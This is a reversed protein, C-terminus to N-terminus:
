VLAADPARTANIAALQRDAAQASDQLAQVFAQIHEPRHDAMMQLRLRSAHLPVAPHEILNVIMGRDLMHRALLRSRAMGGVLVPVIASPRDRICM